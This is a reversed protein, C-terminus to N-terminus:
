ANNKIEQIFDEDKEIFVPTTDGVWASAINYGYWENAEEYSMGDKKMLISIIKDVDYALVADMNPRTAVGIIAEDLGDARMINGDKKLTRKVDEKAMM